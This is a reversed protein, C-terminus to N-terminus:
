LETQPYILSKELEITCFFGIIKGNPAAGIPAAEMPNSCLFEIRNESGFEMFFFLFEEYIIRFEILVPPPPTFFLPVSLIEDM